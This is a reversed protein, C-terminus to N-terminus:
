RARRNCSELAEVAFPQGEVSFSRLAGVERVLTSCVIAPRSASRPSVCTGASCRWINERAVFRERTPPTAPEASYYPGSAVPTAFALAFLPFFAM